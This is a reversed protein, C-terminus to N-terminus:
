VHEYGIKNLKEVFAKIQQGYNSLADHSGSIFLIPQHHNAKKLRNMKNADLIWQFMDHNAQVTFPQGCMQSHKYYEQIKKDRTLWAENDGQIIGDKRMKKQNADISMDQILKSVYRPGKFLRIISTLVKGFHILSKPPAASGSFVAKDYDNPFEIVMKRALFSGMSHGLIYLPLSPHEKQIWEKVLVISNFAIADGQKDAFHVYDYNKTSLGHGLIDNGVVIYGHKNLYSAFLGYRAFHESAGHIIQIVGKPTKDTPYVYTHIENNLADNIIFQKM